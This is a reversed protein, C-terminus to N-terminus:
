VTTSEFTTAAPAVACTEAAHEKLAGVTCHATVGHPFIILVDALEASAGLAARKM